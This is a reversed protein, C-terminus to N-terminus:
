MLKKRKLLPFLRRSMSAKEQRLVARFLAISFDTVLLKRPLDNKASASKPPIKQQFYEYQHLVALHAYLKHIGRRDVWLFQTDTTNSPFPDELVRPYKQIESLFFIGLPTMVSDMVAETSIAIKFAYSGNVDLM